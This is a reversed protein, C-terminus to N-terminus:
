ISASTKSSQLELASPEGTGGVTISTSAPSSLTPTAKPTAKARGHLHRLLRLALKTAMKEKRGKVEPGVGLEEFRELLQELQEEDLMAVLNSRVVDKAVTRTPALSIDMAAASSSIRHSHADKGEDSSGRSMREIVGKMKKKGVSEVLGVQDTVVKFGLSLFSLGM